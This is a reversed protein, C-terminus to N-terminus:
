KSFTFKTVDKDLVRLGYYDCLVELMEKSVYRWKDLEAEYVKIGGQNEVKELLQVVDERGIWRKFELIGIGGTRLVRKIERFYHVVLEFDFHFFTTFSFVCDFSDSQFDALDYGSTKRFSVNSLNKLNKKAEKLAEALIDTCYLHRCYPAIFRSVRGIGCAIELVVSDRSIYPLVVDATKRGDHWQEDLVQLANVGKRRSESLYYKYYGKWQREKESM